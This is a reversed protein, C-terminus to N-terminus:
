GMAVFLFDGEVWIFELELSCLHRAPNVRVGMLLSMVSAM